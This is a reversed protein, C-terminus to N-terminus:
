RTVEPTTTPAAYQEQGATLQFYIAELGSSETRLEHLEIGAEFAAHGVHATSRGTVTLAGGGDATVTAGDARLLDALRDASPSRVLVTGTGDAGARLDALTGERVLRGAGVIVVRDATQEM